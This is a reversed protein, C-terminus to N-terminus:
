TSSHRLILSAPLVRAPFSQAQGGILAFLMEAAAQGMALAPQRVTSLAPEFMAAAPIDDFGIVSIDEPVRVGMKQLQQIAGIAMRDNFAFIATPPESLGLLRGAQERGSIETFDGWTIWEPRSPLQRTALAQRYGAMREELATLNRNVSIVAIREHGTQILHEVAMQAGNRDDAHVTNEGGRLSHYGLAVTPLTRYRLRDAVAEMQHMGVIIAGDVYQTRLLRLLGSGGEEGARAPMLLINYEQAAAVQEVGRMFTLLHPDSFLYDSAYPFALGIIYTRAKNLGRAAVNPVFGLEEVVNLVHARTKESVYPTNSLVKSVTATSVGAKKAVDYITVAM